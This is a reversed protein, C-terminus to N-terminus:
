PPLAIHFDTFVRERAGLSFLRVNTRQDEIRVLAKVAHRAEHGLVEVPRQM